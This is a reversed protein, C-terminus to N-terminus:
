LGEATKQATIIRALIEFIWIQIKTDIKRRKVKGKPIDRESTINGSSTDTM